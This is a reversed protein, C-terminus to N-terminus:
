AAGEETASEKPKRNRIRYGKKIADLKKVEAQFATLAEETSVKAAKVTEEAQKEKDMREKMIDGTLVNGCVDRIADVGSVRACTAKAYVSYAALQSKFAKDLKARAEDRKRIAEDLVEPDVEPLEKPITKTEAEQKEKEKKRGLRAITDECKQIQKEITKRSTEDHEIDRRIVKLDMEKLYIMHEFYNCKAAWEVEEENPESDKGLSSIRRSSAKELEEKAKALETEFGKKEEQVTILKKDDRKRAETETELASKLVLLHESELTLANDTTAERRFIEALADLVPLNTAKLIEIISKSECYAIVSLFGRFEMCCAQKRKIQRAAREADNNDFDVEDDELFLLYANPDENLRTCLNKGDRFWDKAPFKEYEQMGIDLIRQFEEKYEKIAEATFRAHPNDPNISINEADDGVRSEREKDAKKAEAMLKKIFDYMQINWTLDPEQEISRKLYRKVHELCEQHGSGYSYYEVAHDHILIACTQEIPTNKVGAYGKRPRFFYLVRNGCVCITVNYQRGGVRIITGDVHLAHVGLLEAYVGALEASSKLAFEIPLQNIFGTSPVYQNSTLNSLVDQCKKVGLNAMYTLYIIMAKTEPSPNVDDKLGPPCDANIYGGTKRNRFRPVYYTMVHLQTVIQPVMKAVYCDFSYDPDDWLPSDDGCVILDGGSPIGVRRNHHPHEPQGGPLNDTKERSNVRLPKHNIIHSTPKSSNTNDVQSASKARLKKVEGGLAVVQKELAEITRTYEKAKEEFDHFVEKTSNKEARLSENEKSLRDRELTLERLECNLKKQAARAADLKAETEELQSKKGNLQNRLREVERSLQDVRRRLAANDNTLSANREEAEQQYREIWKDINLGRQLEELEIELARIKAIYM